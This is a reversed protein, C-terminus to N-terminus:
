NIHNVFCYQENRKNRRAESEPGRKRCVRSKADFETVPRIVTMARTVPLAFIFHDPDRAMPRVVAVVPDVTMVLAPFMAAVMTVVIPDVGLNM